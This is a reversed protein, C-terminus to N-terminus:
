SPFSVSWRRGEPNVSIVAGEAEVVPAGVGVMKTVRYVGSPPLAMVSTSYGGARSSATSHALFIATAQRQACSRRSNM